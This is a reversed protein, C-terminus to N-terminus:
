RAAAARSAGAAKASAAARGLHKGVPKPAAAENGAIATGSVSAGPVSEGASIAAVTAAAASAAARRVPAAAAPEPLPVFPDNLIGGYGLARYDGLRQFNSTVVSRVSPVVVTPVVVTGGSGDNYPINQVIGIGTTLSEIQGLTGNVGLFGTMTDNWANQFQLGALDTVVQTVTAIASQVVYTTGGVVQSVLGGVLGPIAQALLVQANGIVNDVIYGVGNLAQQVGAQLPAIIQSQLVALASASDGAALYGVAAVVATPTNWIATSVGEVMSFAALGGEAYGSLNNVLASLPGFSFQNAADPIAGVFGPAYLLTSQDFNTDSYFSDPWYLDVFGDPLLSSNFVDATLNEIVGAVASIPSVLSSLQVTSSVRAMSPVVATQAIPTLAVATAGLAAVGAIMQSRLTLQM